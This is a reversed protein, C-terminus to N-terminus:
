RCTSWLDLSRLVNSKLRKGRAITFRWCSTFFTARVFIRQLSSRLIHEPWVAVVPLLIFTRFFSGHSKVVFQSFKKVVSTRATNSFMFDRPPICAVSHPLFDSREIFTSLRAVQNSEMTPIWGVSEEKLPSTVSHEQM